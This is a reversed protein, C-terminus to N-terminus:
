ASGGVARHAGEGALGVAAVAVALAVGFPLFDLLGLVPYGVVPVAVALPLARDALRRVATWGAAAVGRPLAIVFLLAAVTAGLPRWYGVQEPFLLDGLVTLVLCLLGLGVGHAAPLRGARFLAALRGFVLLPVLTAATGVLRLVEPGGDALWGCLLAVLCGAELLVFSALGPERRELPRLAPVLAAVLVLALVPATVASDLLPEAGVAWLAAGVAVAGALVPLHAAVVRRGGALGYGAAMLLLATGLFGFDEGLGSPKNVWSRVVEVFAPTFGHRNPWLGVLYSYALLCVGAATVVRVGPAIPPTRVAIPEAM